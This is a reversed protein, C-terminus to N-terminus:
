DDTDSVIPSWHDGMDSEAVEVLHVNSCVAWLRGCHGCRVFYAFEEAIHSQQGCSCNIDMCVMTGKWQIWGHPGSTIDKDAQEKMAFVRKHRSEDLTNM